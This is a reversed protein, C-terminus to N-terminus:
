TSVRFERSVQYFGPEISSAAISTRTAPLYEEELFETLATFGPQIRLKIAALAEVKVLEEEVGTLNAFPEYFVTDRPKVSTHSRCQELVGGMSAMHNTRGEAVAIRMM